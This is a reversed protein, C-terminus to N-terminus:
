TGNKCLEVCPLRNGNKNKNKKGYFFFILFCFFFLAITPGSCLTKGYYWIITDIDCYLLIVIYYYVLIGRCAGGIGRGHQHATAATEPADVLFLNLFFFYFSGLSPFLLLCSFAFALHPFPQCRTRTLAKEKEGCGVRYSLFFPPILVDECLTSSWEGEPVRGLLLPTRPCRFWCRWM